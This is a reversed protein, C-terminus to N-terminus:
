VFEDGNPSPITDKFGTQIELMKITRNAADKYTDNIRFSDIATHFDRYISELELKKDSFDGDVTEKILKSTKAMAYLLYVYAPNVSPQPSNIALKCQSLFSIAENYYGREFMIDALSLACQPAPSIANCGNKLIAEQTVVNEGDGSAGLEKVLAAMEFYARDAADEPNLRSYTIFEEALAYTKLKLNDRNKGKRMGKVKKLYYKISFSYARWGWSGKDLRILSTYADECLEHQGSESAYLIKDALLDSSPSEKLGRELIWLACDYLNLRAYDVALNHYDNDDALIKWKENSVMEALDRLKKRSSNIYSYSEFDDDDAKVIKKFVSSVDKLIIIGEEQVIVILENYSIDKM